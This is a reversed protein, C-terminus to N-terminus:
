KSIEGAELAAQFEEEKMHVPTPDTESKSNFIHLGDAVGQYIYGPKGKIKYEEGAVCSSENITNESLELENPAHKMEEGDDTKVTYYKEDDAGDEKDLKVIVGTGGHSMKVKDGLKFHSEKIAGEVVIKNNDGDVKVVTETETKEAGKPAEEPKFGDEDKNVKEAEPTEAKTVKEETGNEKPKFGEADTAEEVKGYKVKDLITNQEALQGELLAKAEDLINSKGIVKEAANVESLKEEIFKIRNEVITIEESKAKTIENEAAVLTKVSESIDYNMFDKVIQVAETANAAETLSNEKMGKNVKQIYVKENLTFVSVTLGEYISSSVTYGFDIEKIKSGENIARGIMALKEQENMRVIATSLLISDIDKAEVIKGNLAVKTEEGFSIDLTSHINPYVRMGNETFKSSEAINVLAKFDDNPTSTSEVISNETVDFLKGNSFFTYSGENVEVPSYIKSVKFNPNTGNVEGKIKSCYEFLQKVLPIWTEASMTEVVHFAPNESNSSERLANIAKTYYSRSRDLELDRMVSEILIYTQNEKLFETSEELFSKIEPMWSYAKLERIASELIQVKNLLFSDANATRSEALVSASILNQAKSKDIGRSTLDAYADKANSKGESVELASLSSYYRELIMKSSNNRDIGELLSAFKDKLSTSDFKTKLKSM